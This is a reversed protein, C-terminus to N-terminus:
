RTQLSKHFEALPQLAEQPSPTTIKNFALPQTKIDKISSHYSAIRQSLMAFHRSIQELAEAPIEANTKIVAGFRNEIKSDIEVSFIILMYQDFLESKWGESEITSYDITGSPQFEADYVPIYNTGISLYQGLNDINANNIAQGIAFLIFGCQSDAIKLHHMTENQLIFLLKVQNEELSASLSAVRRGLEPNQIEEQSIEPVNASMVKSAKEIILQMNQQSALTNRHLSFLRSQLIMLLDKIIDAQMYFIEENDASYKTKFALALFKGDHILIGTNLGKISNM